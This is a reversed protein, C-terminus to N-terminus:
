AAKGLREVVSRAQERAVGDAELVDAVDRVNGAHGGGVIAGLVEANVDGIAVWPIRRELFADVAVENAASLM